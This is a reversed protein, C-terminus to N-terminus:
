QKAMHRTILITGTVLDNSEPVASDGRIHFRVLGPKAFCLSATQNWALTMSHPMGGFLPFFGHECSIAERVDIGLEIRVPARGHNVWRVEDGLAVTLETLARGGGIEIEHIIGTRTTKPVTACGFLAVLALVLSPVIFDSASRTTYSRM